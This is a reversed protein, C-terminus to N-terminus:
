VAQERFQNIYLIPIQDSHRPFTERKMKETERERKKKKTKKRKRRSYANTDM